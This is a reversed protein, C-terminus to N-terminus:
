KFPIALLFAGDMEVALTQAAFNELLVTPLQLVNDLAFMEDVYELDLEEKKSAIPLLEMTNAHLPMLAILCIVKLTATGNTLLAHALILSFAHLDELLPM